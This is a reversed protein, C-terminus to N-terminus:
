RLIRSQDKAPHQSSLRDGEQERIYGCIKEEFRISCPLTSEAYVKPSSDHYIPVTTNMDHFIVYRWSETFRYCKFASAFFNYKAQLRELIRLRFIAMQEVSRCECTHM